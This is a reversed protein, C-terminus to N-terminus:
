SAKREADRFQKHNPYSEVFAFTTSTIIAMPEHEVLRTAYRTAVEDAAGRADACIAFSEGVFAFGPGFVRYVFIM